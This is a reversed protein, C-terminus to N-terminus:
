NVLGARQISLTARGPRDILDARNNFSASKRIPCSKYNLNLDSDFHNGSGDGGNFAVLSHGGLDLGTLYTGV